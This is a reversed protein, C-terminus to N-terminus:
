PSQIFETRTDSAPSITPASNMWQSDEGQRHLLVYADVPITPSLRSPTRAITSDLAHNEAPLRMPVTVWLLAALTVSTCLVAMRTRARLPEGLLSWWILPDFVQKRSAGLVALRDIIEDEFGCRPNRASLGSLLRKTLLLSEYEDSCCDCTRLHNRIQLQEVGTVENDVYASLLSNVRRCNV